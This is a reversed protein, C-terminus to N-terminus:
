FAEQQNPAKLEKPACKIKSDPYKIEEEEGGRGGAEGGEKRKKKGKREKIKCM